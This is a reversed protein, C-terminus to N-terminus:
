FSFDEEAAADEQIQRISQLLLPEIGIVSPWFNDFGEDLDFIEDRAKFTVPGVQTNRLEMHLAVSLSPQVEGRTPLGDFDFQFSSDISRFAGSARDFEVVVEVDKLQEVSAFLVNTRLEALAPSELLPKFPVVRIQVAGEAERWGTLQQFVSNSFFRLMNNPYLLESVGTMSEMTSRDVFALQEGIRKLFDVAATQRDASLRVGSPVAFPLGFTGISDLGRHRLRLEQNDSELWVTIFTDFGPAVIELVFRTRYDNGGLLTSDVVLTALGDIPKGLSQPLNKITCDLEWHVTVPYETEVGKALSSKWIELAEAAQEGRM